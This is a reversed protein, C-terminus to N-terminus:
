DNRREDNNYLIEDNYLKLWCFGESCTRHEEELYFVVWQRKRLYRAMVREHFHVANRFWTSITEKSLKM